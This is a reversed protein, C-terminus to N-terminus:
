GVQERFTIPVKTEGDKTFQQGVTAVICNLNGGGGAQDLVFTAYKPPLVTSTTELQLTASGSIVTDLFVQGNVEGVESTREIITTGDEVTIDDAVYNVANISLVQSGFVVSGDNYTAM